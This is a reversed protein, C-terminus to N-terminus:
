VHPAGTIGGYQKPAAGITTFAFGKERAWRLVKEYCGHWRYSGHASRGHWNLAVCGSRAFVQELIGVCKEFAEDPSLKLDDFLVGDMLAM